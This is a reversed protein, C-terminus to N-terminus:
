FELYEQNKKELYRTPVSSSTSALSATRVVQRWRLLGNYEKGYRARSKIPLLELSVLKAAEKIETNPLNVVSDEVEMVIQKTFESYNELKPLFV